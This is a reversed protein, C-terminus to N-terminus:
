RSALFGGLTGDPKRNAAATAQADSIPAPTGEMYPLDSVEVTAGLATAAYLKKAFETPVRICGHSAPFGPNKGAHIAVGDWTLRQMFPMPAADYLNSYNMTKKQLITFVGVPTEKGEKGTSVTSVAVMRDGRYVYARQDPISILIAIPGAAADSEWLYKGPTLTAAAEALSVTAAAGGDDAWAPIALSLAAAAFAFRAINAPKTM